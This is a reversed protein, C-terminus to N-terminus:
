GDAKETGNGHGLSEAAWWKVAGLRGKVWDWLRDLRAKAEEEETQGDHVVPRTPKAPDAPEVPSGSEPQDVPPLSPMEPDAPNPVEPPLLIDGDDDDQADELIEALEDFDHTGKTEFPLRLTGNNPKPEIGLTDCIINYVEINQFEDVQSGKPHPFAPGRAVFIARMLPHQHDYGHLGRPHYAENNQKAKAIDFEDKTVIAWGVRPVIWLPAIRPNASFHYREPMNKDRLYVDFSGRYKPINAMAYLGNYLQSIHHESNDYPRLGYLPWGDIHEIQSTDVLDELQILRKTSTTAMGHDSVVVVNVIDTLNREDIGRFLSGLMGDVEAITSRIFTSNPGYMHGDADVNPVYAAMFQPRPTNDKAGADGPGPLDLWYLIRDVKKGPEEDPNFEDVYEPEMSGIHAESGPWMHIAAKLGAKEATLWLPEANWWEPQMSKSPDGYTFEKQTLPDFFTNGVIGHSEPYLGTVLTFHNPFTLSPFSPTMFKPSVGDCLFTNLAPTINRALFDARFGDLSILLTTPAFNHTGNSLTQAMPSIVTKQMRSSARYAGYLLALFAVIIIIHIGAFKSFRSLRSPKQGAQLEGLRQMDVESSHGSSEGSSSRPGGEEMEYMLQSEEEKVEGKKRKSRQKQGQSRARRTEPDNRKFLTGNRSGKESSGILLREAEEEATLTEEDHRHAEESTRTDDEHYNEDEDSSEAHEIKEDDVSRSM